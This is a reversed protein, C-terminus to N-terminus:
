GGKTIEASKKCSASTSQSSGFGYSKFALADFDDLGVVFIDLTKDGCESTSIADVTISTFSEIYIYKM